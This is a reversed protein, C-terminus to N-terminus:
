YWVLALKITQHIANLRFSFCYQQTQQLQLQLQQQHTEQSSGTFTPRKLPGRGDEVKM